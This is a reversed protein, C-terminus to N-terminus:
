FSKKPLSFPNSTQPVRFPRIKMIGAKRYRDSSPQSLISSPTPSGASFKVNNVLGVGGPVTQSLEQQNQNWSRFEMGLREHFDHSETFDDTQQPPRNFNSMWIGENKMSLPTQKSKKSASWPHFETTMHDTDVSGRDSSPIRKNRRHLTEVGPVPQFDYKSIPIPPVATGGASTPSALSPVHHPVKSKLSNLNEFEWLNSVQIEDDDSVKHQITSPEHKVSCISSWVNTGFEKGCSTDIVLSLPASNKELHQIRDGAEIKNEKLRPPNDDEIQQPKQFPQLTLPHIEGKALLESTMPDLIEGLYDTGLRWDFSDGFPTL